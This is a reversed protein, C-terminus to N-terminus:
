NTILFWLKAQGAPIRLHPASPEFLGRVKGGQGEPTRWPPSELHLQNVLQLYRKPHPMSGNLM